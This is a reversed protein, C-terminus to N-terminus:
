SVTLPVEPWRWTTISNSLKSVALAQKREGSYWAASAYKRFRRRCCHPLRRPRRVKEGESEIAILARLAPLFSMFSAMAPAAPRIPRTSVRMMWSVGPQSTAPPRSGLPEAADQRRYPLRKGADARETDRDAIIRQVRKVRMSPMMSKVTGCAVSSRQSRAACARMTCTM